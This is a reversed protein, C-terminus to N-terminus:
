DNRRERISGGRDVASVESIVFRMKGSSSHPLASVEEFRVHVNVDLLQRLNGALTDLSGATFAPGKVYRLLFNDLTKQVVQLEAIESYDKIVRNTLSIGPFRRGGPLLLTDVLRGEIGAIRKLARGCRCQGEIVRAIDGTKYRIFPTARNWLDTIILHGCGEPLAPDPEIEVYVSPENIHMGDHFECESAVRGLERSGYWDYVKFGLVSEILERQHNFLPEATVSAFKLYPLSRSRRQLFLCFEYLAAPYAQLFLPRWQDLRQLYSQMIQEDLPASPLFISKMYTYNRLRSGLSPKAPFDQPAGWFYAVRDGLRRGYWADMTTTDAWRRLSTHQDRYYSIPSCTTGGTASKTWGKREGHTTVSELSNKLDERTLYPFRRVDDFSQLQSPKVGWESFAKRYHPSNACAYNIIEQLRTLVLGDLSDRDLALEEVSTRHYPNFQNDKLDFILKFFKAVHYQCFRCSVIPSNM